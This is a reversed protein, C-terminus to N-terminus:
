GPPCIGREPSSSFGLIVLLITRAVDIMEQVKGCIESEQKVSSDHQCSMGPEASKM